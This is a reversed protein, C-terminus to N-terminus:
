VRTPNFPRPASLDIEAVRKHTLKHLQDQLYNFISRFMRSREKRGRILNIRMQSADQLANVQCM